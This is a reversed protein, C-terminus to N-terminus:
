KIIEIIEPQTFNNDYCEEDPIIEKQENLPINLNYETNYFYIQANSMNESHLICTIKYISRDLPTLTFNVTNDEVIFALGCIAKAAATELQFSAKKCGKEASRIILEKKFFSSLFYSKNKIGAQYEEFDQQQLMLIKASLLQYDQTEPNKQLEDLKEKLLQLKTKQENM